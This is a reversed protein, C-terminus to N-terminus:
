HHGHGAGPDAPKGSGPTSGGRADTARAQGAAAHSDSNASKAASAAAGKASKNAADDKATDADGKAHKDAEDTTKDTEADSENDHTGKKAQAEAKEAAGNKGHAINAQVFRANDSASAPLTPPTKPADAQTELAEHAASKGEDARAPRNILLGLAAASTTIWLKM